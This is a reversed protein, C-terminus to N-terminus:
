NFANLPFLWTFQCNPVYFLCIADDDHYPFGLFSCACHVFSMHLVFNSCIQSGLATIRIELPLSFRPFTFRNRNAGATLCSFSIIQPYFFCIIDQTRQFQTCECAFVGEDNSPFWKRHVVFRITWQLNECKRSWEDLASLIFCACAWDAESQNLKMASRRSKKSKWSHIEMSERRM